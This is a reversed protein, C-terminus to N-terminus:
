LFTHTATCIVPVTHGMSMNSNFCFCNKFVALVTLIVLMIFM